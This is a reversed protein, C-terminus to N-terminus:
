LARGTLPSEIGALRIYDGKSVTLKSSNLGVTFVPTFIPPEIGEAAAIRGIDERVANLTDYMTLLAACAAKYEAALLEVQLIQRKWDPLTKECITAWENEFAGDPYVPLTNVRQRMEALHKLKSELEARKESLEVTKETNCDEAAQQLAHAIARQEREAANIAANVKALKDAKENRYKQFGQMLEARDTPIPPTYTAANKAQELATLAETIRRERKETLVLQEPNDAAVEKEQQVAALEARTDKIAKDLEAIKKKDTM